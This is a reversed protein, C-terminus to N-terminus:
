DDFQGSFLGFFAGQQDTAVLFTGAPITTPEVVLTGGLEPIRKADDDVSEVAFYVLWADPPQPLMGGNLRDGNYIGWYPPEAEPIREFRWGFLGEYFAQSREPDSTNVQNMTHAGPDNVIEAGISDRPEWVSFVAGNPDAIVAMRGATMVDFPEALLQAGLESAKAAADDASAVTVYSNWATAQGPQAQGIAAARKGRTLTMTYVGGDPLPLDELDWGLLESYFTKAAEADSTALDVWSFTGPAHQTREPM